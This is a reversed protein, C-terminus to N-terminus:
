VVERKEIDINKLDGNFSFVISILLTIAGVLLFMFGYIGDRNGIARSLLAVKEYMSALWDTIGGALLSSLPIIGLVCARRLAFVKGQHYEPIREQWITMNCGLIVPITLFYILTGAAFLPVSKVVVVTMLVMGGLANLLLMSGTRNRPVGKIGVLISSIMMGVGGCTLVTGLALANTIGQPNLKNLVYVLPQVLIEIFSIFFNNFVFLILLTLIVKDGVILKLGIICDKVFDISNTGNELGDSGFKIPAILAFAILFCIIDILVINGLSLSYYLMGGLLPSVIKNISEGVNALGIARGFDEKHVMQSIGAQFAPAQFSSCISKILVVLYIVLRNLVGMNFMVLIGLSGLAAITDSAIIIHKKNFKDIIAGSFPAVLIGPIYM